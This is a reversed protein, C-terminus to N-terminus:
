LLGGVWVGAFTLAIGALNNVLINALAIFGAKSRAFNVTEMAYTSFTTLAGLFGTVFFAWVTPTMFGGHRALSASLGILFCGSLNVALTGWPFRTGFLRVCLLTTAYRCLAGFSGGVLVLLIWITQENL